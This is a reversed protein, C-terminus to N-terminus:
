KLFLWISAALLVFLSFELLLSLLTTTANQKSRSPSLSKLITELLSDHSQFVFDVASEEVDYQLDKCTSDSFISARLTDLAQGNVAVVVVLVAFLAIKM